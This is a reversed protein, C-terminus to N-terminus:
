AKAADVIISGWPMLNSTDKDLFGLVGYIGSISWSVGLDNMASTITGYFQFTGPDQSGDTGFEGILLPIGLPTLADMKHTIWREQGLTTGHYPEAGLARDPDKAKQGHVTGSYLNQFFEEYEANKPNGELGTGWRGGFYDHADFAVNGLASWGSLDAFTLGPTYGSRTMFFITRAPDAARISTAMDRMVDVMLQTSAHANPMTGVSPENMVEYGAIGPINKFQKGVYTWYEKAFQQRLDDTWFDTAAQSAGDNTQPYTIGHSNYSAQYLWSPWNWFTDGDAHNDILVYMGDQTALNVIQKVKDLYAQNWHHTWVGGALDPHTPELEDWHFRIRVFNMKYTALQDFWPASCCPAVINLGRLAIPNSGAWFKGTHATITASAPAVRGTASRGQALAGPAQPLMALGAATVAAILLRVPRGASAARSATRIESSTTM